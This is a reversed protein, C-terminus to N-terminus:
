FQNLDIIISPDPTCRDGMTLLFKEMVVHVYTLHGSSIWKIEVYWLIYLITDLFPRRTGFGTMISGFFM